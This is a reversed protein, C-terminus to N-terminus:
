MWPRRPDAGERNLAPAGDGGQWIQDGFRAALAQVTREPERGTFGAGLGRPPLAPEPTKDESV